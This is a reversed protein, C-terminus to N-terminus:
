AWKGNSAWSALSKLMLAYGPGAKIKRGGPRSLSTPWWMDRRPLLIRREKDSGKVTFKVVTLDLVTESWIVGELDVKEPLQIENLDIIWMQGARDWFWSTSYVLRKSDTHIEVRLFLLEIFSLQAAKRAAGSLLANWPKPLVIITPRVDMAMKDSGELAWLDPRFRLPNGGEQHPTTDASSGKSEEEAVVAETRNRRATVSARLQGSLWYIPVMPLDLLSITSTPAAQHEIAAGEEAPTPGNQKSAIFARVYGSLWYVFKM